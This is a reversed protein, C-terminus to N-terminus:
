FIISVASDYVLLSYHQVSVQLTELACVSLAGVHTLFHPFSEWWGDHLSEILGGGIYVIIVV